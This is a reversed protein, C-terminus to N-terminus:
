EGDKERQAPGNRKTHAPHEAILALGGTALRVLENQRGVGTKAFINKLQTRVTHISINLTEAVEAVQVGEAILAAVRAEAATLEFMRKLHREGTSPRSPDHIVIGIADAGGDEKAGLGTTYGHVAEGEGQRTLRFYGVAEEGSRKEACAIADSLSAEGEPDVAHLHNANTRLVDGAAIIERAARNMSIVRRGRDVVVVGLTLQDLLASLLECVGLTTTATPGHTVM